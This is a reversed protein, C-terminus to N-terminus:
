AKQRAGEPDYFPPAVVEAQLRVGGEGQITIPSGPAASEAAAFAMGITRGLVASTGVSTVHGVIDPGRLVLHGELVPWTAGPPAQWCVLARTPPQAARVRLARQGIFFPKDAAVAWGLGVEQPISVADTDQGVIVHGKELRLQRQAEVGIPVLGHELGLELLRDVVSLARSAPLHLEYALEGLFGVRMAIAQVGLLSLVRARMYGFAAHSLDEQPCLAALINRSAPGALNVGCYASTVNTVDVDLGWRANWKLMSRFIADSHGSTTTVYYSADQVCAVVGDDYVSGVEDLMLAYRVAGPKMTTYRGTYMRELFRAADPGRVRLGGLTGVDFLGARQRVAAVENAVAQERTTGVPFCAPRLWPGVPMMVAGLQLHRDHLATRRVAHAPGTAMHAVTEEGVPPRPTAVGVGAGESGRARALIRLTALASHRGQTPGMGVTSFRKLLQMDAYGLRVTERLDQPQLDEDLDVFAKGGGDEFIPWAPLAPQQRWRGARPDGVAGEGSAALMQGAAERGLRTAHEVAAELATEGALQGVVDLGGQPSAEVVFNRVQPEYRVRAGGQAALNFAPVTGASVALVDCAFRETQGSSRRLEVGGVHLRRPAAQARLATVGDLLRVGAGELAAVMDSPGAVTGRLDALAAVEVGADLLDLAAGYANDDAAVVVARRGPRVGHLRILRQVGSPLVVGPLDNDPFVPFQEIGGHAMVVHRARVKLLQRGQIVSLLGDEFVGTVTAGTHLRVGPPAALTELHQARQAADAQPQAAWRGWLLSGGLRPMQEFLAVDAGAAQAAAAAALGAPGGGVVAVDCHLFRQSFPEGAAPAGAHGLGAMARIRREWRDWRGGPGFFDRYYFGVPLFRSLRGLVAAPDRELRGIVNLPRVDDGQAVPRLDAAVNPETGLQVLTNAEHGAFSVPGRPRHYKFSRSLLWRGNAVLASAITDGLFGQVTTGDFRFELPRSRDILLGAPADLRASGHHREAM